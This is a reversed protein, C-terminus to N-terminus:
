KVKDPKKKGDSSQYHYQGKPIDYQFIHTNQSTQTNSILLCEAPLANTAHSVDM